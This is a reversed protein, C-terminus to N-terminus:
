AVMRALHTLLAVGGQRLDPLTTAGAFCVDNSGAPGLRRLRVELLDAEVAAALARCEEALAAASPPGFVAGAAVLVAVADEVPESPGPPASTLQVPATPLGARSARLAWEADGLWVGSLGLATPRNLVPCPLGQLWSLWFAQLEQHAYGRDAPSVAVLDLPVGMIRNIVVRLADSKFSRGDSLEVELEAGMRGLRHEWRKARLLEAATVMELPADRAALGNVLWTASSDRPECLLLRM